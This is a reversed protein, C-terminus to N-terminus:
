SPSQPAGNGWVDFDASSDCTDWDSRRAGTPLPPAPRGPGQADSTQQCRESRRQNRPAPAPDVAPPAPRAAVGFAGNVRLGRGPCHLAPAIDWRSTPRDADSPEVPRGPERSARPQFSAQPPLGDGSHWRNRLDIRCLAPRAAHEPVRRRVHGAVGSWGVPRDARLGRSRIQPASTGPIAPGIAGVCRQARGTLDGPAATARLRGPRM